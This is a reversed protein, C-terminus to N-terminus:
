IMNVKVTAFTMKNSYTRTYGFVQEDNIGWSRWDDVISYNLKKIWVQTSTFPVLMDHDGSYILSRYGKKSLNLHYQWSDYMTITFPVDVDCRKWDKVTGNRMHLANRVSKDNMWYESLWYEDM